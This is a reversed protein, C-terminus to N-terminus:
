GASAATNARTPAATARLPCPVAFAAPAALGMSGAVTSVHLIVSAAESLVNHRDSILRKRASLAFPFFLSGLRDDVQQRFELVKPAVKTFDGKQVVVKVAGEM